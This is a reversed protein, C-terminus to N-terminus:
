RAAPEQSHLWTMYREILDRFRAPVKEFEQNQIAERIEPPLSAIWPPADTRKAEGGEPDDKPDVRGGGSKPDRSDRGGKPETSATEEPTPQENM